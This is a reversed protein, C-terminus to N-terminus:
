VSEPDGDAVESFEGELTNPDPLMRREEALELLKSTPISRMDHDHEIRGTHEHKTETKTPAYHGHLKGLERAAMIQETATEANNYADLFMREVAARDTVMIEASDGVGAAIAAVVNPAKAMRYAERKPQKLGSATGAAIISDGLLRQRVFIRQMATCKELADALKTM